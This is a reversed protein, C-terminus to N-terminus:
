INKKKREREEKNETIIEKYYIRYELKKQFFFFFIKKKIVDYNWTMWNILKIWCFTTTVKLSNIGHRGCRSIDRLLYAFIICNSNKKKKKEM